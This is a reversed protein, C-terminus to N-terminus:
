WEGCGTVDVDRCVVGISVVIDHVPVIADVPSCIGNRCVMCAMM